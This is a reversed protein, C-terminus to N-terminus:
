VAPEEPLDLPFVLEGGGAARAADPHEVLSTGDPASCKSRSTRSVICRRDAGLGWNMLALQLSLPYFTAVPTDAFFAARARATARTNM